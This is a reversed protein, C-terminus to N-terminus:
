LFLLVALSQLINLKDLCVNNGVSVDPIYIPIRKAVCDSIEYDGVVTAKVDSWRNMIDEYKLQRPVQVSPITLQLEIKPDKIFFLSSCTPPIGLTFSSEYGHSMIWLIQSCKRQHEELNQGIM